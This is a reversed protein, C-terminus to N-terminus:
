KIQKGDKEIIYIGDQFIRLDRGKVSTLKEIDASVQGCIEKSTGEVVIQDGNLKVQVGEKIKLSRPFKEGLFNKITIEGKNIVVNMPFHGSCVKLKYVHGETVGKQLNKIHANISGIMKKENKTTGIGVISIKDGEITIKVNNAKIIKSVEGKPGKMIFTLGDYSATVGEALKIEEKLEKIKKKGM